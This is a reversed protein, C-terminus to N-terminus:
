FGKCFIVCFLVGVALKIDLKHGAERHGDCFSMWQSLSILQKKQKDLVIGKKSYCRGCCPWMSKSGKKVNTIKRPPPTYLRLIYRSSVQFYNDLACHGSDTIWCARLGLQQIGYCCVWSRKMHQNKKWQLHMFDLPRITCVMIM